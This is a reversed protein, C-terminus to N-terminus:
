NVENFEIKSWAALRQCKRKHSKINSYAYDKHCFECEQREHREHVNRIHQHFNRFTLVHSGPCLKCRVRRNKGTGEYNEYLLKFRETMNIKKDQFRHPSSTKVKSLTEEDASDSSITHSSDNNNNNVKSVDHSTDSDNVDNDLEESNESDEEESSSSCDLDEKLSTLTSEITTNKSSRVNNEEQEEKVSDKLLFIEKFSSKVLYEEYGEVIEVNGIRWGNSRLHLDYKTTSDGVVQTEMEKKVSVPALANTIKSFAPGVNAKVKSSTSGEDGVVEKKSYKFNPGSGSLYCNSKRKYHSFRLDNYDCDESSSM